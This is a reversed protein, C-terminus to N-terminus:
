RAGRDTVLPRDLDSGSYATVEPRCDISCITPTRWARRKKPTFVESEGRNPLKVLQRKGYVISAGYPLERLAIGLIFKRGM